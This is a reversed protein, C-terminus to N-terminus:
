EPRMILKVQAMRVWWCYCGPSLFVMISKAASSPLTQFSQLHDNSRFISVTGEGGSINIVIATTYNYPGRVLVPSPTLWGEAGEM